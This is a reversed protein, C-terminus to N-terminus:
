LCVKKIKNKKFTQSDGQYYKVGKKASVRSVKSETQNPNSSQKIIEQFREAKRKRSNPHEGENRSEVIIVGADCLEM